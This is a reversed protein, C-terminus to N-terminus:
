GAVHELNLLHQKQAPTVWLVGPEVASSQFMVGTKRMADHEGTTVEEPSDHIFGEAELAKVAEDFNFPMVSKYTGTFQVNHEIEFLQNLKM